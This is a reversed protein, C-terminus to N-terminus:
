TGANLAQCCLMHACAGANCLLQVGIVGGGAWGGAEQCPVAVPWLLPRGAPEALAAPLQLLHQLSPSSPLLVDEPGLAPAPRGPGLSRSGGGGGVLAGWAMQHQRTPLVSYQLRAPAPAAAASSSAAGAAPEPLGQQVLAGLEAALLPGLRTAFGQQAGAASSPGAPSAGSSGAAALEMSQGQGQGAQQGEGGLLQVQLVVQICGRVAVRHTVM